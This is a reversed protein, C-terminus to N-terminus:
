WNADNNRQPRRPKGRGDERGEGRRASEYKPANNENTSKEVADVSNHKEKEENKPKFPTKNPRSDNPRGHDNTSTSQGPEKDRPGKRFGRNQVGSSEKNRFRGVGDGGANGNYRSQPHGNSHQQHGNNYYHIPSSRPHLKRFLDDVSERMEEIDKLHKLHYNILLEANTIAERTGTFSFDVMENTTPVESEPGDGIQVRVVGSRDVIDQITRGSKGIVQGVMTRPVPVANMVYELMNRAQEAADQTKALVKFTCIGNNRQSEDIIVDEVGEIKRANAINTGHTGISLGMLEASVTFETVCNSSVDTLSLMRRAEEQKQLLMNKQKANTLFVESLIKIKKISQSSFSVVKIQGTEKLYEVHINKVLDTLDKYSQPKSFYEKLDDPVDILCQKFSEYTIPSASNVPRCRSSMNIVDTNQPGEVTEVVVFEGKIDKVKAKQWACFTNQQDGSSQQMFAEVLDGAKFTSPANSKGETFVYRCKDFPCMEAPRSNNDYSVLVGNQTVQEVFAKAYVGSPQSVEIEMVSCIYPSNSIAANVNSENRAAPVNASPLTLNVMATKEEGSYSSPQEPYIAPKPESNANSQTVNLLATKDNVSDDDFPPLVDNEQPQSTNEAVKTTISANGDLNTSSQTAECKNKDTAVFSSQKHRVKKSTNIKKAIEDITELQVSRLDTKQSLSRVVNPKANSDENLKKGGEVDNLNAALLDCFSIKEAEQQKKRDSRPENQEKSMNEPTTRTNTKTKVGTGHMKAKPTNKPGSLNVKEKSGKKLKPMPEQKESKNAKKKGCLVVPLSIVYVVVFFTDLIVAATFNSSITRSM